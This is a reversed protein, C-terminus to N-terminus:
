LKYKILFMVRRNKRRGAESKNEAIPKTSGYGVPYIRAATIGKNKIYNAVAIARFKSLKLNFDLSGVQDTHGQVELILNPNDKLYEILTDLVPFASEELTASATAFQVQPFVLLTDKKIKIEPYKTLEAQCLEMPEIVDVQDIFYFAEPFHSKGKFVKSDFDYQAGFHGLTLYQEGGKSLYNGSVQVWEDHNDLVEKKHEIEPIYYFQIFDGYNKPLPDESFYIAAKNIALSSKEAFSIYFSVQYYQGKVMPRKLKTQIYSRKIDGFDHYEGILKGGMKLWIYGQGDKPTQKGRANTYGWYKSNKHIYGAETVKHLEWYTLQNILLPPTNGKFHEFSPDQVLNCQGNVLSTSFFYLFLIILFKM